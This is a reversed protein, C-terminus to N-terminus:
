RGNGLWNSARVEFSLTGTDTGMDQDRFLLTPRVKGAVAVLEGGAKAVTILLDFQLHLQRRSM